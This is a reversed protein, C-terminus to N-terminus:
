DNDKRESSEACYFSENTELDIMPCYHYGNGSRSIWETDWNKCDKCRILKSIQVKDVINVANIDVLQEVKTKARCIHLGGNDLLRNLLKGGVNSDLQDKIYDFLDPDMALDDKYVIQNCKLTEM